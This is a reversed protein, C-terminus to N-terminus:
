IAQFKVGIGKTFLSHRYVHQFYFLYNMKSNAEVEDEKEQQTRLDAIEEAIGFYNVSDPIIITQDIEDHMQGPPGEHINGLFKKNVPDYKM